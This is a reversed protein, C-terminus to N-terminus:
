GAWHVRGDTLFCRCPDDYRLNLFGGAGDHRNPGHQAGLTLAPTYARGLADVTARVQSSSVQPARALIERLFFYFDCTKSMAGVQVRSAAKNGAKAQIELCLNRRPPLAPEGKEHVDYAPNWVVGVAGRLQEPPFLDKLAEPFQGSNLGYRPRYGQREAAQGWLVFNVGQPELFTVRNIGATHFRLVANSIQNTAQSLDDGNIFAEEVVNGGAAAVEKKYLEHAGRFEPNDVAVAGVRADGSFFAQAALGRALTRAIRSLNFTSAYFLHQRHADFGKEDHYPVADSGITVVDRKALCDVLLAGADELFAAFVKNDETFHACVAQQVGQPNSLTESSKYGYIVPVLKRGAVGGTANVYAIMAEHLKRVDGTSPVASGFLSQNATDRDALFAIGVKIETTSVGPGNAAPAPAPAPRGGGGSSGTGNGGSGSSARPARAPPGAADTPSAALPSSRTAASPGSAGPAPAALTGSPVAETQPALPDLTEAVAVDAVGDLDADVAATADGEDTASITSASPPVTSGCAAALVAGVIILALLRVRAM